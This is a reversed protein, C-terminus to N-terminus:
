FPSVPVSRKFVRQGSWLWLRKRKVGLSTLSSKKSRHRSQINLQFRIKKRSIRSKFSRKLAIFTKHFKHRLFLFPSLSLIVFNVFLNFNILFTQAVFVFLCRLSFRKWYGSSATFVQVVPNLCNKIKKEIDEIDRMTKPADNFQM